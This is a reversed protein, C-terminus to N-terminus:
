RQKTVSDHYRPMRDRANPVRFKTPGQCIKKNVPMEFLNQNNFELKAANMLGYEIENTREAVFAFDADTTLNGYSLKGTEYDFLPRGILNSLGITSDFKLGITVVQNPLNLRLGLSRNDRNSDTIVGVTQLMKENFRAPQHPMLVTVFTLRQGAFFYNALSQHFTKSPNFRRDIETIGSRKDRNDLFQILLEKNHENLWFEKRIAIRSPHSVVYNEGSKLINDPHWINAFTKHGARTILLNDVFVYMGTAPVFLVIRDGTYGREEDVLRTRSYDLTEFTGFHIKETQVEHYTKDQRIYDFPDSGDVPFGTRAVVRNHYFDARWGDHFSRRYGGDHLLVTRDDMLVIVSNEDAHGHHPKEEPATLQQNQYDRNDRAFAGMDRYNLLLYSSAKDKDNRFVIKKSILDDVIEESHSIKYPEIAVKEDIWRLAGSMAYIADGTLFNSKELRRYYEYLRASFYLYRGNKYYSGARAMDAAFWHWSHTWDSDGWDPLMENPLLLRSYFEPYFRPQPLYMLEDVRNRTEAATYLYYLWFPQYISADEVSWKGWSDSLLADGYKRWKKIEPHDPVAKAAILFGAGDIDGRNQPGWDTTDYHTAVNAAIFDEIQKQEARNFVKRERLYILAECFPQVLRFSSLLFRENGPLKDATQVMYLLDERAWDLYKKDGTKSHVVTLAPLVWVYDRAVKAANSQKNKILKDHQATAINTTDDTLRQAFDQTTGITQACISVPTFIFGSLVAIAALRLIKNLEIKMNM